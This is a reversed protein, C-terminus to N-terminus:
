YSTKYSFITRRLLIYTHSNIKNREFHKKKANSNTLTHQLNFERKDNIQADQKTLKFLYIEDGHCWIKSVSRTVGLKPWLLLHTNTSANPKRWVRKTTWPDLFYLPSATKQSKSVTKRSELVNTSM